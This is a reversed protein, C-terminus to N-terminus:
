RMAGEGIRPLPLEVELPFDQGAVQELLARADEDCAEELGGPPPLFRVTAQASTAGSEAPALTFRATKEGRPVVLTRALGIEPVQLFVGYPGGIGGRAVTTEPPVSTTRELEVPEHVVYTCYKSVGPWPWPTGPWRWDGHACSTFGLWFTNQPHEDNDKWCWAGMRQRDEPPFKELLDLDRFDHTTNIQTVNASRAYQKTEVTKGLYHRDHEFPGFLGNLFMFPIPLVGLSCANLVEGAIMSGPRNNESTFDSSLYRGDGVYALWTPVLADRPHYITEAWDTYLGVALRKRKTVSVRKYHREMTKRTTVEGFLGIEVSGGEGAMAAVSPEYTKEEKEATARIEAPYETTFTETGCPIAVCGSQAVAVLVALACAKTMQRATEM